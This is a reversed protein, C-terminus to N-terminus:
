SKTAALRTLGDGTLRCLRWDHLVRAGNREYFAIAPENWDLVAWEMRGCSREVAIRALATLLRTGVGRGRWEPVVFLDELYLGRRGLFTSFNHFFLAFGVAESRAQVDAAADSPSTWAILVEAAPRPGFLADRLGDETAVVEHALKEYDGLATILRLILPVDQQRAPAIRVDSM